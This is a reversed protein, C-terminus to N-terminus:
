EMKQVYNRLIQLGAADLDVVHVVRANQIRWLRAMKVPDEFYVTEKEYSGQYLRVCNGDRIDIAPIVLTM